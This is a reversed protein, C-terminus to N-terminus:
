KSSNVAYRNIQEKSFGTLDVIDELPMNKQLCKQVISAIGAKRGEKIGKEIGKAEGEEFALGIADRVDRYELVSKKYTKMDEKTLQSIEAAQFLEEFIEGQVADPRNDLRSLHKLSFLWRDFNTELESETKRFKPLEVFVFNVKRTYYSKTRERVLRVYEVVHQRDEEFEDFLVFDLIAVFYVAKLRFDWVGRVAQKRIPLSAYFVSRDRFFPQKARQMEAIFYEGRENICFIDFVAKRDKETYGRQETPLYQIDKILGEEKIIENLFDILFGKSSETGFLRHFGFDTLPNLYRENLENKKV